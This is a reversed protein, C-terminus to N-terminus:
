SVASLQHRNAEVKKEAAKEIRHSHSKAIGISDINYEHVLAMRAAKDDGELYHATRELLLGNIYRTALDVMEFAVLSKDDSEQITKYTELTDEYM